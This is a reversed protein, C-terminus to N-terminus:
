KLTTAEALPPAPPTRARRSILPTAVAPGITGTAIGPGSTM